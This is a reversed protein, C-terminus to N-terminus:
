KRGAMNAPIHSDICCEKLQCYTLEWVKERKYLLSAGGAILSLSIPDFLSLVIDCLTLFTLLSFTVFTRSM